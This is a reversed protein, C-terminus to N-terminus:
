CRFLKRVWVSLRPVAQQKSAMASSLGFHGCEFRAWASSICAAVGSSTSPAASFSPKM